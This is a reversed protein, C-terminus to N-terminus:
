ELRDAVWERLNGKREEEVLDDIANSRNFSKHTKYAKLAAKMGAVCNDVKNTKGENTLVNRAWGAMYFVRLAPCENLLVDIRVYVNYNVYPCGTVWLVMFEIAGKMKPDNADTNESELWEACKIIDKDYKKYDAKTELVYNEPVKFKQAFASIGMFISVILVLFAYTTKM